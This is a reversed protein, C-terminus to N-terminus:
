KEYFTILRYSARFRYINTLTKSNQSFYLNPATLIISEREAFYGSVEVGCVVRRVVGCAVRRVVGRAVRRVVGRVVRRVVGRVVRRVVGRVVRRVVGRAVRRVVGRVVRRVVGRVVRHVVGRVVAGVVRFLCGYKSSRPFSELLKGAGGVIMVTHFVAAM